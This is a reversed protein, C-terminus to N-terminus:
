SYSVAVSLLRAGFHLLASLTRLEGAGRHWGLQGTPLKAQFWMVPAAVV